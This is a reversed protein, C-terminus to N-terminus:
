FKVARKAEDPNKKISKTMTLYSVTESNKFPNYINDSLELSHLTMDYYHQVMESDVYTQHLRTKVPKEADQSDFINYSYFMITKKTSNLQM